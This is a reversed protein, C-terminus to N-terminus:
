TGSCTRPRRPSRSTSRPAPWAPKLWRRLDSSKVASCSPRCPRRPGGRPGPMRGPTSRPPAELPIPVFHPAGDPRAPPDSGPQRDRSSSWSATSAWTMVIPESVGTANVRRDIIEQVVGMTAADPGQRQDPLVRYEVRLGGQLDLGLKTEVTAAEGEASTPVHPGALLRPGARVRWSPSSSPPPQAVCRAPHYVTALRARSSPGGGPERAELDAKIRAALAAGIGPVAAIQEVPAERVRKVSGFVRLLARRRRARRGPLDDFACRVAARARLDRHYTIAFRHAEDRIRQVLYLAPSTPPLVVAGRARAPLAGRAGQGARRAASRAARARRAGGRQASRARGGDIIVLDPLALAAGRREGGRGDPGGTSAGASCRRTARSTTRARSPRVRFRRYEGTRPRGDEFVVMSGVTRQGPYDLHRLVRYSRRAPCASRRGAGRPRGADQGPGRALAGARAGPRPANPRALDVLRAERRAAPVRLQVPRGTTRGPVGGPRRTPPCSRSWSRRRSRTPPRLVALVFAPSCRTTPRRARRRSSSSTAVSSRATGSWSSSSRRRTARRALGILDHETRAFAAM